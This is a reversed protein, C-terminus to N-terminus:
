CPWYYAWGEQRRAIKRSHNQIVNVVGLPLAFGAVIVMWSDLRGSFWDYSENPTFLALIPIIGAAATLILAVRRKM